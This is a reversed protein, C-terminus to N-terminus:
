DDSAPALEFWVNSSEPDVGWRSTLAAVIRLGMGGDAKDVNERIRIPGTGEDAIEGRIRGQEDSRLAVEIMKGSAHRVSNTVLESVVYRLDAYTRRPVQGELASLARRAQASARPQRELRMTLEM